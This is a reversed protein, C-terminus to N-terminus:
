FEVFNYTWWFVNISSKSTIGTMPLCIERFYLVYEINKGESPVFVSKCKATNVSADKAFKGSCIDLAPRYLIKSMPQPLLRQTKDHDEQLILRTTLLVDDASANVRILPISFAM